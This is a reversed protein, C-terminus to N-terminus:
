QTEVRISAIVTTNKKVKYKKIQEDLWSAFSATDRLSRVEALVLARAEAFSKIKFPQREVVKFLHIGEAMTVPGFTDGPRLKFSKELDPSYGKEIWGYLDKSELNFASSYKKAVETFSQKSILKKVIQAQNEDNVLIHALLVAEPQEYKTRNSDYFSLLEKESPEANKKTIAALVKKKKLGAEMKAVWDVYSLGSESLLERFVADSPYTATFSAIEKNLEDPSLSMKNEKFWLEIFSSVVFDNIIQEKLVSLTKPDKASIADLEKLRSALEKSLSQTTLQFNEIQVVPKTLIKNSIFNCSTLVTLFSVAFFIRRGIQWNALLSILLNLTLM